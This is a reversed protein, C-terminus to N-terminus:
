KEVFVHEVEMLLTVERRRRQKEAEDHLNRHWKKIAVKSLYYNLRFIELNSYGHSEHIGKYVIAEGGYKVNLLDILFNDEVFEPTAM